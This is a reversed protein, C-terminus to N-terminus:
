RAYAPRPARSNYIAMSLEINISAVGELGVPEALELKTWDQGGKKLAVQAMNVKCAPISATIRAWINEFRRPAEVIKVCPNATLSSGERTLLIVEDVQLVARALVDRAAESMEGWLAPFRPGFRHHLAAVVIRELQFLLKHVEARQVGYPEYFGQNMRAHFLPLCGAKYIRDVLDMDVGQPLLVPLVRKLWAVDSESPGKPSQDSAICELCLYANRYADFLDESLQAL